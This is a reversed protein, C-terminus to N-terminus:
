PGPQRPDRRVLLGRGEEVTVRGDAFVVEGRSITVAPGGVIEWGDYLSYDANTQLDDARLTRSLDPDWVVLDADSGVAITGKQPYVGFIKAANTSTVEVFRELSIRGKRVGESYLLPMMTELDAMGPSVTTIDRTPDLKDAKPSPAHDTCCTQVSGAFIGAWLAAVDESTRLPPNGIYLAGDERRLHQEDFLLYIPRTEVFIPVGRARAKHAVELAERSSLHVIYVPAGTAEAYAAARAVAVAESYVPRSKGYNLPQGEGEALMREAIVSVVCADECHLMTVLGHRGAVDMLNVYERVEADFSGFMMFAKISSCGAAALGPIHEAMGQASLMVPHLVFDVISDQAADAATREIAAVPGEGIRPFTMNGITTIGGAAASRSGSAFDDAWGVAQEGVAEEPQGATEVGGPGIGAPVFAPSLHVHMDVGGPIVLKGTADIEKTQADRPIEGGIQVIKGGSVGLDARGRSGATVVEGGRIWLDVVQDGGIGM